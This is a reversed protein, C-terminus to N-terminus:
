MFKKQINFFYVGKYYLSGVIFWILVSKAIAIYLFYPSDKNEKIFYALALTSVAEIMIAFTGVLTFRGIYTSDKGSMRMFILTPLLSFPYAWLVAGGVPNLYTGVYSVLAIFAGGFLFNQLLDSVIKNM